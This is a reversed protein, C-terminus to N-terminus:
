QQAQWFASLVQIHADIEAVPVPVSPDLRLASLMSEGQAALELEMLRIADDARALLQASAAAAQTAEAPTLPAPVSSTSAAVSASSSSSV